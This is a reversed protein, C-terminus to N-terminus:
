LGMGVIPADFSDLEPCYLSWRTVRLRCVETKRQSFQPPQSERKLLSHCLLLDVSVIAGLSSARM